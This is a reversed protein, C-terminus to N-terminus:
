FSNLIKELCWSITMDIQMSHLASTHKESIWERHHRLFTLCEPFEKYSEESGTRLM